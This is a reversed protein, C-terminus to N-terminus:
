KDQRDELKDVRLLSTRSIKKFLPHLGDMSNPLKMGHVTTMLGHDRTGATTGHTLGLDMMMSLGHVMNTGHDTIPGPAMMLGITGPATILGHDRMGTGPTILDLMLGHVLKPGHDTTLPPRVTMKVTLLAPMLAPTLLLPQLMLLPIMLLPILELMPPPAPMLLLPAILQLIM